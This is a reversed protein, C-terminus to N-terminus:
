NRANQKTVNKKSQEYLERIKEEPLEAIAMFANILAQEGGPPIEANTAQICGPNARDSFAIAEKIEEETYGQKRYSQIVAERITM